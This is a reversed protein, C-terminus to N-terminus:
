AKHSAHAHAAAVAGHRWRYWPEMLLLVTFVRCMQFVTVVPAGLSLARATLSMEAIGGPATGLLLTAAPLSVFWSLGWAFLASLCLLGVTAVAVAALWRPATHVFEPTFRVGLSVGILLQALSAMWPAIGSLEVQFLTLGMAMLMPGLFWPNARGLKHLGVAALVVCAALELAGSVNFIHMANTGADAGHVGSLMLGFPIVVVVILLRLSHAAAVLDTRAHAREALLTMESAAGVAGAFFTTARNVGPLRHALSRHLWEGCMWGMFLAWGVGLAVAWWLDLVVRAVAPTFYLGLATGIIAQGACRFPNYSQTRVRLMSASATAVM